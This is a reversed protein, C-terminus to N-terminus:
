QSPEAGSLYEDDIEYTVQPNIRIGLGHAIMVEALRDGNVLAVPKDHEEDAVERAGITFDSTTVFLLRDSRRSWRDRLYSIDRPGVNGSRRKVQVAVKARVFPSDLYTIIDVGEDGSKGVVQTDRFGIADLVRGVLQEFDYPEIANLRTLLKQKAADRDMRPLRPAPVTDPELNRQVPVSDNKNSGNTYTDNSSPALPKLRAAKAWDSGLVSSLPDGTAIFVRARESGVGRQILDEILADPAQGNARWEGPPVHELLGRIKLHNFAWQFINDFVKTRGDARTRARDEASLNPFHRAVGEMMQSRRVTKKARVTEVLLALDVDRYTPISM